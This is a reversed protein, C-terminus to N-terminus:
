PSTKRSLGPPYNGKFRHLQLSLNSAATDKKSLTARLGRLSRLFFAQTGGSRRM